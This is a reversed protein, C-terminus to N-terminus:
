GRNGLDVLFFLQSVGNARRTNMNHTLVGKPLWGKM